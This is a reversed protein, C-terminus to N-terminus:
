RPYVTVLRPADGPTRLIWATTVELGPGRPGKLTGSIMYKAGYQTSEGPVADGQVALERLQLALEPWNEAELGARAFFAAKFRGIPHTRSLLYDRVKREDVVARDAHPLKM